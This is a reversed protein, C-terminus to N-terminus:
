ERAERAEGLRVLREVLELLRARVTEDPLSQFLRVMRAAKRDLLPERPNEVVLGEFFYHPAVGLAWALKALVAAFLRSEGSEYKQVQQGSVGILKGLRGPTLERERRLERLRRSLHEQVPDSLIIKEDNEDPNQKIM